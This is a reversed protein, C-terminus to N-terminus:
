GLEGAAAMDRIKKLHQKVFDEQDAGERMVRLGVALQFFPESPLHNNKRVVQVSLLVKKHEVYSRESVKGLVIGILNRHHPNNASLGFKPMLKGYEIREGGLKKLETAIPEILDTVQKDRAQLEKLLSRASIGAWKEDWESTLLFPKLQGSRVYARVTTQEIGLASAAFPIPIFVDTARLAASLGLLYNRVDVGAMSDTM